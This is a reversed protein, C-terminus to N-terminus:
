RHEVDDDPGTIVDSAEPTPDLKGALYLRVFRRQEDLPLVTAGKGVLNPACELIPLLREVRDLNAQRDLELAQLLAVLIPEGAITHALAPPVSVRRQYAAHLEALNLNARACQRAAAARVSATDRREVNAVRGANRLALGGTAGAIAVAAIAAAAAIALLRGLVRTRRELWAMRRLLWDPAEVDDAPDRDDSM